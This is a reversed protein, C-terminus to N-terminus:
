RRLEGPQIPEAEWGAVPSAIRGIIGRHRSLDPHFADVIRGLRAVANPHQDVAQPRAPEFLLIGM